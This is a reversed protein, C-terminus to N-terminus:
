KRIVLKTAGEEYDRETVLKREVQARLFEGFFSENTCACIHTMLPVVKDEQIQAPRRIKEM